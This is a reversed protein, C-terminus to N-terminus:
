HWSLSSPGHKSHINTRTHTRARTTRSASALVESSISSSRGSQAAIWATADMRPSGKGGGFNSGALGLHLGLPISRAGEEMQSTIHLCPCSGPSCVHLPFFEAGFLELVPPGGGPPFDIITFM